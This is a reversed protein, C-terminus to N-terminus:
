GARWIRVGGEVARTVMKAGTRRAFNRAAWAAQGNSGQGEVFLSQGVEMDAFRYKGVSGGKAAPVPVDSEFTSM